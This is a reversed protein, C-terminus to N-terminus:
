GDTGAFTQRYSPGPWLRHRAGTDDCTNGSGGRMRSHDKHRIGRGAHSMTKVFARDKRDGTMSRIFEGEIKLFDVPFRKIYHFSSFGSGFDDIAFKFGEFKLDHVFKELLSMNKVTDRETIEFVIHAHDIEYEKTLKLVRPIFEKLILSKPSLNIFLSGKYREDRVKRFVNEMVVYDLKSVVGLREAVEIFEEAKLIGKDTKIRSLVEHGEVKGNKMDVIPQFYPILTKEEIANMVIVTMEGTARFVEVVDEETPVIITNKGESKAKYMMNDAFLFLDKANMAHVPYVAFGISVTAKIKSGDQATIAFAGAGELIRTAVAFVQEEDADPLIVVFEDGGYRALIDGDRLAGRLVDAIGTLYRDGLIHGHSDNINKFNDLDIVLLSFKQGHRQARGIEYGLLEWFLRQNYLNTLPDRTAYYELDKTYKYIAKISGVANLLTTLVGDIVLSRIADKTMESQVGIGVVGGIHPKQLIM